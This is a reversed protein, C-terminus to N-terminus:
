FQVTAQADISPGIQTRTAIPSYEAHATGFLNRGSLSLELNSMPRWSGRLDVAVYGPISPTNLASVHRVTLDLETHRPLDWSSRVQWTQAPDRGRAGLLNTLDTSGPKLWFRQYLGNFGASMRWNPLTQYTCWMELGTQAAKMNSAFIVYNRTASLEQTHLDNYLARYLTASYTLQRLPQGRYGIEMVEAKESRTDPGGALLYPVGRPPLTAPWPIYPDRDLRSPARAARSLATWVLHDPTLKWALRANPLIENGTYDNRELRAGLTLHLDDRLTIEDQAFLSSWSQDLVAPLFGFYVSNTLHDRSQRYEGGFAWAHKASPHLTYQVQVDAIDLDEIFTPPVVRHSHDYYAQLSMEAGGDLQRTWKGLLNVGTTVITGLVLPVGTISISGPAPQGRDGQYIEGQTMFQNNGRSWDARFGAQSMQRADSVDDGNVLQMHNRNFHKAYVRYSGDEDVKVGHRAAVDTGRNGADAMVLSGPTDTASRTIVNIVGNVANVGWLTGGPGSIVEIREIDQLMVNQIDWFVGAFLPTYVSRGDVLVLLKNASTGVTGRANIAYDNNSVQAVQLNPALRLVDPLSTAGSRRIDDATIVFVSTPADSLPQARKSASTIEINSLEELSLDALSTPTAAHAPVSLFYALSVACGISYPWLRISPPATVERKDMSNPQHTGNLRIRLVNQTEASM